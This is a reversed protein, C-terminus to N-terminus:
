AEEETEAEASEEYDEECAFAALAGEGYLVRLDEGPEFAVLRVGFTKELNGCLKSLSQKRGEWAEANFALCICSLLHGPKDSEAITRARAEAEEWVDLQEQYLPFKLIKVPHDPSPKAAGRDAVATSLVKDVEKRVQDVSLDQATELWEEAKEKDKILGADALKRLSNAKTTSISGMQESSLPTNTKLSRFIKVYEYGQRGPIGLEAECYREFSGFGWDNYLGKDIIFDLTEALAVNLVRSGLYLAKARARVEDPSMTALDVQSPVGPLLEEGPRVAPVLSM